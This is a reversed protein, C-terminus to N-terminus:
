KGHMNMIRADDSQLISDYINLVHAEYLSAVTSSLGVYQEDNDM